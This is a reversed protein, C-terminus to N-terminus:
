AKGEAESIAERAQECLPCDCPPDAALRAKLAALLKTAAAALRDREADAAAQLQRAIQTYTRESARWGPRKM